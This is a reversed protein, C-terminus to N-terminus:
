HGDNVLAHVTLDTIGVYRCWHESLHLWQYRNAEESRTLREDGVVAGRGAQTLGPLRHHSKASEPCGGPERPHFATAGPPAQALREVLVREEQWVQGLPGDTYSM